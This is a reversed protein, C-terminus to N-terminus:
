MFEELGRSYRRAAKINKTESWSAFYPLVISWNEADDLDPCQIRLKELKHYLTLVAEQPVSRHQRIQKGLQQIDGHLLHFRNAPRLSQAWVWNIM